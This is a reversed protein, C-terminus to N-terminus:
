RVCRVYQGHPGSVGDFRWGARPRPTWVAPNHDVLLGHAVDGLIMWFDRLTGAPDIERGGSDYRDSHELPATDLGGRSYQGRSAAEPPIPLRWVDRVAEACRQAVPGPITCTQLNSKDGHLCSGGAMLHCGLHFDAFKRPDTSRSYDVNQEFIGVPPERGVAWLDTAPYPDDGELGLRSTELLNKSGRAWDWKRAFQQTTFDMLAGPEDPHKGDQYASRSSLTSVNPFRHAIGGNKWDENVYEDLSEPLFVLQGFHQDQETTSMRIPSSEDQDCFRVAFPRLAQALQWEQFKPFEDYFRAGYRRPDFNTVKWMCFFVWANAGIARSWTAYDELRGIDGDLWLQFANFADVAQLKYLHDGEWMELGAARLLLVGAPAPPDVPPDVPPVVGGTAGGPGGDVLPKGQIDLLIDQHTWDEVLRRWANHGMDQPGPDHGRAARYTAKVAPMETDRLEDYSVPVDRHETGGYGGFEGLISAEVLGIPWVEVLCRWFNHALVQPSPGAGSARKIASAITVSDAGVFQDYTPLM